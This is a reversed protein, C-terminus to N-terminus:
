LYQHRTHSTEAAHQAGTSLKESARACAWLVARRLKTDIAPPSCGAGGGRKERVGPSTERAGGARPAVRARRALNPARGGLAAFAAALRELVPLERGALDFLQLREAQLKAFL